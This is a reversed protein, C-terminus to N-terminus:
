TFENKSLREFDNVAFNLARRQGSAFIQASYSNVSNRSKIIIEVINYTRSMQFPPDKGYHM